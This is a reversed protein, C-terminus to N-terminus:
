FLIPKNELYNHSGIGFISSTLPELNRYLLSIDRIIFLLFLYEKKNDVIKTNITCSFLFM